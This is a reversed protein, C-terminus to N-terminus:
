GAAAARKKQPELDELFVYYSAGACRVRVTRDNFGPGGIDIQAGAPLQTILGLPSAVGSHTSLIPIASVNRPLTYSQEFPIAMSTATLPEAKL